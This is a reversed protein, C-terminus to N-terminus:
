ERVAFGWTPDSPATVPLDANLARCVMPEQLISATLVEHWWSVLPLQGRATGEWAASACCLGCAPHPLDSQQPNPIFSPQASPCHHAQPQAMRSGMVEAETPTGSAPGIGM